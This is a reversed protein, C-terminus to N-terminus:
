RLVTAYQETVWNVRVVKLVPYYELPMAVGQELFDTIVPPNAGPNMIIASPLEVVQPPVEVPQISSLLMPIWECGARAISFARHIGNTIVIREM